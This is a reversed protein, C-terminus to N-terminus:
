CDGPSLSLVPGRAAPLALIARTAEDGLLPRIVVLRGDRIAIVGAEILRRGDRSEILARGGVGPDVGASRRLGVMLRQVEAEWGTVPDAGQVPGVGSEVRDIYADIRRVNRRRVGDRHGHAGSGFGLYEGAAWVGLNYRCEHGPRAHNSVEYRRLGAASILAVAMEWMDAQLDPDPASDGAAVRRSLATGREVTLAYTSLHDPALSLAEGLTREWGALTEGPTGFILDLNISRFGARRASSVAAVAQAPTHVRGLAALVGPDFSQSGFSVRDFGAGVLGTALEDSWDEPNAELSVEAGPLLGFRDALGDVIRGLRAAGIRSPTGGGVFVASLPGWEPESSIEALLADIYRDALDDRGAVVAFDCYPCVRACFPVHVYASRFGAAADALSPGDPSEPNM